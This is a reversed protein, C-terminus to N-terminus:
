RGKMWEWAKEMRKRDFKKKLLDKELAVWGEADTKFRAFGKPGRTAGPQRVFVLNGPNHLVKPLSREVYFGEM